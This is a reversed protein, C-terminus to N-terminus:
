EDGYPPPLPIEPSWKQDVLGAMIQDDIRTFLPYKKEKRSLRRTKKRLKFEM